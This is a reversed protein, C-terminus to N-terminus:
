HLRTDTQFVCAFWTLLHPRLNITLQSPIDQGFMAKPLTWSPLLAINLPFITNESQMNDPAV